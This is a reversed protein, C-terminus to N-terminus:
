QKSAKFKFFKAVYAVLGKGCKMCLDFSHSVGAGRVSGHVQPTNQDIWSTDRPLIQQCKDCKTVQMYRNM